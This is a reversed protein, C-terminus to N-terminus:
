QKGTAKEVLQTYKEHLRINQRANYGSLVKEVLTNSDRM